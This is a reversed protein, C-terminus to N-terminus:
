SRLPEDKEHASFRWRTADKPFQNWAFAKNPRFVFTGGRNYDEPKAGYGYKKNSAESLRVALSREPTRLEYADGQLIIVDSASELHVCVAPNHALNRNRRTDAYGGFYLADDMWVGDVPTAHPRGDPDVTCIWYVMAQDMRESVHSWPLLGKEDKPIGYGPM